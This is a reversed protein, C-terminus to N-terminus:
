KFILKAILTVIGAIIAGYLIWHSKILWQVNTSVKAIDVQMTGMSDQIHALHNEKINKIDDKVEKMENEMSIYHISGILETM